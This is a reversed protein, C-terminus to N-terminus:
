EASGDHRVGLLYDRRVGLENVLTVIGHGSQKHLRHILNSSVAVRVAEGKRRFYEANELTAVASGCSPLNV